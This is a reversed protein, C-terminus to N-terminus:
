FSMYLLWLAAMMLANAYGAAVVCALGFGLWATLTLFADSHDWWFISPLAAFGSTASGFHARVRDLFSGLPLRGNTGILPLVQKAAVFFAVAYIGGLLRLIVFRTLWYSGTSLPQSRQAETM